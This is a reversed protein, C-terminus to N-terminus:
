HPTGKSLCACTQPALGGLGVGPSPSLLFNAGCAYRSPLLHLECVILKIGARLQSITPVVLLGTLTPSMIHM